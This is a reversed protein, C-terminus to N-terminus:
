KNLAARSANVVMAGALHIITGNGSSAYNLTKPKSKLLAQLEKASKAAVKSPNVVLVIPTSGVLGPSPISRTM